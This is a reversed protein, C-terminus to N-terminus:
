IAPTVSPCTGPTIIPQSPLPITPAPAPAPIAPTPIPNIGLLHLLLNILQILWQLLTDLFSRPNNKNKTRRNANNQADASVSTTICPDVTPSLTITTAPTKTYSKPTTNIGPPTSTPVGTPCSGLCYITPTVYPSTPNTIPPVGGGPITCPDGAACIQYIHVAFPDFADTFQGNNVTLKHSIDSATSRGSGSAWTGLYTVNHSGTLEAITITTTIQTGGKNVVILYKEDNTENEKLIWNFNSRPGDRWLTVNYTNSFSVNDSSKHKDWRFSNTRSVLIDNLSKLEQAQTNYLALEAANKVLGPLNNSASSDYGKYSWYTIGKIDLTIATYTLTRIEQASLTWGWEASAQLITWVPKGVDNVNNFTNASNSDGYAEFGAQWSNQEWAFNAQARTWLSSSKHTYTDWSLIDAANAFSKLSSPYFADVGSINLLAPHNPDKAKVARYANEMESISIVDGASCCDPEDDLRWGLFHPKTIYDAPVSSSEYAEWYIGAAEFMDTVSRWENSGSSTGWVDASYYFKDKVKSISTSCPEYNDGDGSACIQYLGVPFTKVGNISITKDPNIIVTSAEVEEALGFIILCFVAAIIIKFINQKQFLRNKIFNLYLSPKKSPM